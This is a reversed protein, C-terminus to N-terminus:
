AKITNLTTVKPTTTKFCFIEMELVNWFLPWVKDHFFQQIHMIFECCQCLPNNRNKGFIKERNDFKAYTQIYNDYEAYCLM